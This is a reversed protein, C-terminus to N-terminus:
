NGPTQAFCSRFAVILVTMDTRRNKKEECPVARSWCYPNVHLTLNQRFNTSVDQVFPVSVEYSCERLNM